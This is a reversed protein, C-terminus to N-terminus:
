LSLQGGPNKPCSRPGLSLKKGPSTDHSRSSSVPHSLSSVHCLLARLGIVGEKRDWQITSVQGLSALPKELPRGYLCFRLPVALGAGFASLTRLYACFYSSHHGSSALKESTLGELGPMSRPGWLEKSLLNSHSYWNGNSAM